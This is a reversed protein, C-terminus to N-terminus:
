TCLGITYGYVWAKALNQSNQKIKFFLSYIVQFSQKSLASSSTMACLLSGFSCVSLLCRKLSVSMAAGGFWSSKRAEGEKIEPFFDEWQSRFTLFSIWYLYIFVLPINRPSFNSPFGTTPLRFQCSPLFFNCAWSCISRSAKWFHGKGLQCSKSLKRNVIFVCPLTKFHCIITFTDLFLPKKAFNGCRENLVVKSFGFTGSLALAGNGLYTWQQGVM